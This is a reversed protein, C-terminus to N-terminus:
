EKERKRTGGGRGRSVAESRWYMLLPGRVQFYRSQWRGHSSSKKKLVGATSYPEEIWSLVLLRSSDSIKRSLSSRDSSASSDRGHSSTSYHSTDQNGLDDSRSSSISSIMGGGGSRGYSHERDEDELGWQLRVRDESPANERESSSSSWRLEEM